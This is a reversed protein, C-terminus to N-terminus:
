RHQHGGDGGPGSSHGLDPHRRRTRRLDTKRGRRHGTGVPQQRNAAGVRDGRQGVADTSRWRAIDHDTGAIAPDRRGLLQHRAVDADVHQRARRLQDNEGVCARIRSHHRGIEEGLGLVVGVRQRHQDGGIRRQGVGDVERESALECVQRGAVDGAGGESVPEHDDGVAELLGRGDAIAEGGFVELDERSVGFLHGPAEVM